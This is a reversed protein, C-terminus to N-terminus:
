TERYQRRQPRAIMGPAPSKNTKLVSAVLHLGDIAYKVFNHHFNNNAIIIKAQITPWAHLVSKSESM